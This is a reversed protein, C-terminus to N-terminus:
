FHVYDPINMKQQLRCGDSSVICIRIKNSCILSLVASSSQFSMVIIISIGLIVQFVPVHPAIATGEPLAQVKVPMYGNNEKIFKEFLERPYPYATYTPAQHTSYFADADEVDKMTWQRAVFNEVVYRIGYWVIRVDKEDGEYGRRFEGYQLKLSLLVM